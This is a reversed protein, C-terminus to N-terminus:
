GPALFSLIHLKLPQSDGPSPSGPVPTSSSLFIQSPRIVAPQSSLSAHLRHTLWLQVVLLVSLAPRRPFTCANPPPTYLARPHQFRTPGAPGASVACLCGNAFQLQMPHHNGVASTLVFTCPSCVILRLMFVSSHNGERDFVM